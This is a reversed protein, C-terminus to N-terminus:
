QVAVRWPAVPDALALPDFKSCTICVMQVNWLLEIPNWELTCPPLFLVFIDFRKWLWDELIACKRQSHYSVNDLVLVDGQLLFGDAVAVEVDLLM